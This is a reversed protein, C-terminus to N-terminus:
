PCGVGLKGNGYFTKTSSPFQGNGKDNPTVVSRGFLKYRDHISEQTSNRRMPLWIADSRAMRSTDSSFTCPELGSFAVRNLVM